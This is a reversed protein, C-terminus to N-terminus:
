YKELLELAQEEALERMETPTKVKLKKQGALLLLFGVASCAAMIIVLPQATGNFFLGVLSSALAGLAMQLSGM